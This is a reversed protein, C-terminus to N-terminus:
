ISEEHIKEKYWDFGDKLMPIIEKDYFGYLGCSVFPHIEILDTQNGHIGIDLTYAKPGKYTYAIENIVNPNPFVLPNGLYHQAALVENNHIFVRYESDFAVRESVVYNTEPKIDLDYPNLANNWKKLTDADKFFYKENLYEKPIDRGKCIFYERKLLHRLEAPVELPQMKPMYKKVFLLNGVPIISEKESLDLKEGELVFRDIYWSAYRKLLSKIMIGDITKAYEKQILFVNDM